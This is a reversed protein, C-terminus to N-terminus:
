NLVPFTKCLESSRLNKLSSGPLWVVSIVRQTGKNLVCIMRTMEYLLQDLSFTAFNWIFNLLIFSYFFWILLGFSSLFCPFSGELGEKANGQDRLTLGLFFMEIKNQNFFLVLPWQLLNKNQNTHVRTTYTHTFIRPHVFTDKHTHLSPTM